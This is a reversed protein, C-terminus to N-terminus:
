RSRGDWRMGDEMLQAKASFQKPHLREKFSVPSPFWGPLKIKLKTELQGTTDRPLLPEPTCMTKSVATDPVWCFHNGACLTHKEKSASYKLSVM